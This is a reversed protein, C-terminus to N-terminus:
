LTGLQQAQVQPGIAGFVGSHADSRDRKRPKKSAHNGIELSKWACGGVNLASVAAEAAICGGKSHTSLSFCHSLLFTIIWDDAM